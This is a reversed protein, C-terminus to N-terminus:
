FTGYWNRLRVEIDPEDKLADAFTQTRQGRYHYPYVIRPRFAKAMEAAEEPSQTYPLNMPLFAIDINSLDQTEPIFETDGAICVREDGLTLVYGNGLGKPHFMQGPAPGNDINYMPVAEIEIETGGLDVTRSDGNAMVEADTVTEAVAAPALIKTEPQMVWGIANLDMHDGHTHTILILDAKPLLSYDGQATPDVHIIKDDWELMLSAHAIPTIKLEGSSTEEVDSERARPDQGRVEAKMKEGDSPLVWGDEVLQDISAAFKDYYGEFSGYLAEIKAYDFPVRYGADRCARGGGTRGAHYTAAPVDLYPTRLGGTPNGHVDLVFSAEATGPNRLEIRDARPPAVGERVWRDLNAYAGTLIYLQPFDNLPYVPNCVYTFLWDGTVVELGGAVQTEANILYPYLWKDVHTAGGVEYRRYQDGPEDSDPRRGSVSGPVHNFGIVQIVPVGANRIVRRPDDDALAPACRHLAGPGGSEKILYGDYPPEGNSLRANPAIAAVYTPLDGGSQMTFYVHEVDFGALPGDQSNSKLLAGVQSIIDWRVGNESDPFFQAPRNHNDAPPVGCNELPKPFSMQSYRRSDFIKLAGINQSFVTAGVWIDGHNLIYDFLHGWLVMTDSGMPRNGGEVIVSGSFREPDAPRRIWIRTTYPLGSHRVTLTGDEEWDYVNGTGTIFFEEEVYGYVALDIPTILTDAANLIGSQATVPIPGTADPVPVTIDYGSQSVAPPAGLSLLLAIALVLRLPILTASM